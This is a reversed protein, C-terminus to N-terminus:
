RTKAPCRCLSNLANVVPDIQAAGYSYEKKNEKSMTYERSYITCYIPCDHISDNYLRIVRNM